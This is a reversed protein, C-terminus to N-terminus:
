FELSFARLLLALIIELLYYAKWAMSITGNFCVNLIVISLQIPFSLVCLKMDVIELLNSNGVIVKWNCLIRGVSLAYLYIQITSNETIIYQYDQNYNNIDYHSTISSYSLLWHLFVFYNKLFWFKVVHNMSNSYLNSFFISWRCLVLTLEFHTCTKHINQMPPLPVNIAYTCLLM